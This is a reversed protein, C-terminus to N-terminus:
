PNLQFRCAKYNRLTDCRTTLRLSPTWMLGDDDDNRQPVQTRPLQGEVRFRKPPSVGCATLSKAVTEVLAKQFNESAQSANDNAFFEEMDPEMPPVVKHLKFHAGAVEEYSITGDEVVTISPLSQDPRRQSGGQQQVAAAQQQQQAPPQEQQAPPPKPIAEQQKQQAKNARRQAAEREVSSFTQVSQQQKAPETQQEPQQQPAAPQQATTMSPQPAPSPDVSSCFVAQASLHHALHTPDIATLPAPQQSPPADDYDDDEEYDDNDYDVDDYADAQLTSENAGSAAASTKEPLLPTPTSVDVYM